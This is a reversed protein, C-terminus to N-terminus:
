ARSSQLFPAYEAVIDFTEKTKQAGGLASHDVEFIPLSRFVSRPLDVYEIVARLDHTFDPLWDPSPIGGYLKTLCTHDWSSFWGWLEPPRDDETLFMFLEEAISRRQKWESEPPLHRVVNEMLWSNQRIREWDAEASVAEFTRGDEAVVGISILDYGTATQDFETDYFYRMLGSERATAPTTM